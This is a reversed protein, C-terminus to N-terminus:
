SVYKLDFRKKFPSYSVFWTLDSNVKFHINIPKALDLMDRLGYMM